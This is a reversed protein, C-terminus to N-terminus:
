YTRYEPHCDYMECDGGNAYPRWAARGHKHCDFCNQGVFTTPATGNHGSSLHCSLCEAHFDDVTGQHCSSCLSYAGNGNESTVTVANGNVNEKFHWVNGSGHQDHCIQCPIAAAARSYPSKLALKGVPWPMESGGSYDYRQASGVGDGHFDNQYASAVNVLGPPMTTGAPPNNDHCKNCFGRYDVTQVSPATVDFADINVHYGSSSPNALQPVRIKITHSGTGLGDKTYVAVQWLNIPSYLDVYQQFVNDISVEAIGQVTGMMSIWVVKGGTFTLTATAGNAFSFKRQGGSANSDSVSSWSGSYAIAPDAEQSRSVGGGIITPAPTFSNAKNDPDITKSARNNLHPNHCGICEIASNVQTADDVNHKATNGALLNFRQYINVGTESNPGSHCAGGGGGYCLSEEPLVTLKAVPAGGGNDIGHVNHCNACEGVAYGSFQAAGAHQSQSYQTQERYAYNAPKAPLADDDHCKFCLDARSVRLYDTAGAKGHPNHCNGCMGSDFDADPYRTLAKGSSRNTLSHKVQDFLPGGGFKPTNARSVNHCALCLTNDNGSVTHTTDEPDLVEGRLSKPRSSTMEYTHCRRCRDLDPYPGAGSRLETDHPTGVFDTLHDGGVATTGPGHCLECAPGGTPLKITPDVKLKYVNVAEAGSAANSYFYLSHTGVPATLSTSYTLWSGGTSDWQYYTVGTESRTLTITPITRYWGEINEPRAPDVQINTQVTAWAQGAMLAYGIVGVLVTAVLHKRM